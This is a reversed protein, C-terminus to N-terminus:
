EVDFVMPKTYAPDIPDYPNAPASTLGVEARGRAEAKEIAQLILAELRDTKEYTWFGCAVMGAFEGMIHEVHLVASTPQKM